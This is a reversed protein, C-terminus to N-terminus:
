SCFEGDGITLYNDMNKLSQIGFYMKFDLDTASGLSYGYIQADKAQVLDGSSTRCPELAAGNLILCNLKKPLELYYISLIRSISCSISFDTSISFCYSLSTGEQQIQENKDTQVAGSGNYDFSKTSSVSNCDNQSLSTEKEGDCLEITSM